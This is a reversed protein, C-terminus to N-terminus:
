DSRRIQKKIQNTLEEVGLVPDRNKGNAIYSNGNATDIILMLEYNNIKGETSKVENNSLEIKDIKEIKSIFESLTSIIGNISRLQYKKLDEFGRIKLILKLSGIKDKILVSKLLDRINLVGVPMKNEDVITISDFDSKLLSKIINEKDKDKDITLDKNKWKLYKNLLYEERRNKEGIYNTTRKSGNQTGFEKSETEKNFAKILNNKTVSGLYHSKNDIIFVRTDSKSKLMKYADVVKADDQLIIPKKTKSGHIMIELFTNNSSLIRLINKASIQGIIKKNTDFVPLKSWSYNIMQKIAIDIQSSPTIFGNTILNNEAKSKYALRSNVVTNQLSISGLYLDKDYVLVPEFISNVLGILNGLKEDRSCKVFNTEKKIFLKVSPTKKVSYGM